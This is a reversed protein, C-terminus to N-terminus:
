LKNIITLAIILNDKDESYILEKLFEYNKNNKHYSNDIWYKMSRQIGYIRGDVNFDSIFVFATAVPKLDYDLWKIKIM